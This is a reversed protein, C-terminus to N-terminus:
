SQEETIRIAEIIVGSGIESMVPALCENTAKGNSVFEALLLAIPDAASNGAKPELANTGLPAAISLMNRRSKTTQPM